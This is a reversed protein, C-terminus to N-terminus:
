RHPSFYLRPEGLQKQSAFNRSSISKNELRELTFQTYTRPGTVSSPHAHIRLTWTTACSRVRQDHRSRDHHYLTVRRLGAFAGWWRRPLLSAETTVCTASGQSTVDDAGGRPARDSPGPGKGRTKPRYTSKSRMPRPPMASM